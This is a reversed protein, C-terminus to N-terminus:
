WSEIIIVSTLRGFDGIGMDDLNGGGEEQPPKINLM